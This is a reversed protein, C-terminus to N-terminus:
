EECRWSYILKDLIDKSVGALICNQRIQFAKAFVKFDDMIIGKSMLHKNERSLGNNTNGSILSKAFTKGIFNSYPKRLEKFIKGLSKINPIKIEELYTNKTQYTADSGTIRLSVWEDCLIDEYREISKIAKAMNEFLSLLLSFEDRAYIEQKEGQRNVYFGQILNSNRGQTLVEGRLMDKFVHLEQINEIKPFLLYHTLNAHDCAFPIDDLWEISGLFACKPCVHYDPEMKRIGCQSRLSGTVVPYIIQSVQSIGYKDVYYESCIDCPKGVESNQSSLLFRCIEKKIGTEKGLFNVYKGKHMTPLYARNRIEPIGKENTRQYKLKFDILREIEETLRETQDGNLADFVIGEDWGVNVDLEEMLHGMFEIANDFWWDHYRQIKVKMGRVKVRLYEPVHM